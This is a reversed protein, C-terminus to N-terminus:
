SLATLVQLTNRIVDAADKKSEPWKHVADNGLKRINHATTAIEPSIIARDKAVLIMDSLTYKGEKDGLKDECYERPVQAEFEADLVSRCMVVCEADFGFLYCRSVRELFATARWSPEASATLPLLTWFREVGSDILHIAEWGLSISVDENVLELMDNMSGSPDPSAHAALELLERMLRQGEPIAAMSALEGVGKILAESTQQILTWM